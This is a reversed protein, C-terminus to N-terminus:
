EGMDYSFPQYPESNRELAILYTEFSEKRVAKPKFFRVKAFYNQLLNQQDKEIGGGQFLKCIFHGQPKVWKLALDSINEVLGASRASDVTKNGTTKPAADSMLIDLPLYAKLQTELESSFVDYQFFHFNSAYYEKSMSAIDIGVVKGAPAVAKCAYLSWSGPVCGVDLVNAGKFFLGFKEDIEKLKYVSRAPYGEKKAQQSYHDPAEYSRAKAM